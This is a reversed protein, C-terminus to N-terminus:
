GQIYLAGRIEQDLIRNREKEAFVSAYVLSTRYELERQRENVAAFRSAFPIEKKKMEKLYARGRDNFALIRIDPENLRSVEQKTVQCMAQLCTRRIRGATYRHSVAANLFGEWTDNEAACNKLHIEIGESFLFMESLRKRQTTLLLTRLYPYYAPWFALPSRSLQEAMVTAGEVPQRNYLAKRIAMASANETLEEDLYGGTRQVILPRIGTGEMAKLYCVALIDNPEMEATLLSYAQPFSMGGSMTERLHDPNVPASAIEKLNEPNGCESGFCISEAGAKKLLSVAGSAFRSASQTAYIYPLEIVIDIGNRLAAQARQWKDIVAPEGRQVFNGSMVAMLVDCGSLERAKQIHYIHGNHLPNYEATIGCLKM